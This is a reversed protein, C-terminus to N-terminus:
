ASFFEATELVQFGKADLAAAVDAAALAGLNLGGANVQIPGRRAILLKTNTNLAATADRMVVGVIAAATAPVGGNVAVLDGVKFSKAAGNYVVTGRCYASSAWLEEKFVNGFPKNEVAIVAM